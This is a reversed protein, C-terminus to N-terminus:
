YSSELNAASVSAAVLDRKLHYQPPYRYEAAQEIGDLVTLSICM